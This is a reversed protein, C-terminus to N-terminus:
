LEEDSDLEKELKRRKRRKVLVVTLIIGGLLVVSAIAIPIPKLFRALLGRLGGQEGGPFNPDMGDPYMGDPRMGGPFGDIMGDMGGMGDMGDMGMSLDIVNMVFDKKEEYATGAADEYSIVVYGTQEGGTEPVVMGDFYDSGGSQINGAYYSQAQTVFPGETTVMVNYLTTKGMNIFELSFGMGQGVYAEPMNLMIDGIVLKTVQSVPISISEKATIPSNESDEYEINSYLPYSKPEADAKIFLKISREVSGRPAISEIYFTNSGEVPTFISGPSSNTGGDGATSDMQVTINKVYETASTNYFMLTVDVTQGAKADRPEYSYNSVIIKPVSGKKNPDDAKNDEDPKYLLIGVYQTASVRAGEMGSGAGTGTGSGSGTGAGGGNGTGDGSGSGTGTGTGTGSGNGSGAGAGVNKPLYEITFAIPSNGTTLSKSVSFDFSVPVSQGPAIPKLMRTNLSKGILEAGISYTLKVEDMDVDGTNKIDFSVTFNAGERLSETPAKMNLFEVATYLKSEDVIDLPIFIASDDSYEKGTEDVYSLGLTLEANEGTLKEAARLDFKESLSGRGRIDGVYKIDATNNTIIGDSKLGKLTLKVNRANLTGINNLQIKMSFTSGPAIRARGTDISEVVLKPPTNNNQVKFGITEANEVTAGGFNPVCTFRVALTNQGNKATPLTKLRFTVTTVAGVKLEPITAILAKKEYEFPFDANESGPDITVVIDKAVQKGTNKVPIELRYDKGAVATMFSASVDVVLRPPDAPGSPNISGGGGGNDLDANLVFERIQLPLTETFELQNSGPTFGSRFGSVELDFSRSNGDFRVNEYEINVRDTNFEVFRDLIGTFGVGAAKIRVHGQFVPEPKTKELTFVIRVVAGSRVESLVTNSGQQYVTYGSIWIGSNTTQSPQTPDTTPQTPQTTGSAYLQPVATLVVSFIMLLVAAIRLFHHLRGAQKRQETKCQGRM